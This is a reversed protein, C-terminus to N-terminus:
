SCSTLVTAVLAARSDVGARDLLSTVHLEVTREVCALEAAIAANSLGRTLLALVETQRPTLTWRRKSAEVCSAIRADRTAPAVIALWLPEGDSIPVLEVATSTRRTVADRLMETVSRLGGDLLTRGACNMERIVGRATLVFAPASIRSLAIDLAARLYPADRLREDAELRRRMPEVLLQLVYMQRPSPPKSDLAGFWGIVRPGSCLLARPQYHLHADCPRLARATPSEEWTGPRHREVWARAEIVRNRQAPPPGLPNYYFPFTGPVDFLRRIFSQADLVLGAGEWRDIQWAGTRNRVTYAGVGEIELLERLAPMVSAITADDLRVTMLEDAISRVRDHDRKDLRVTAV